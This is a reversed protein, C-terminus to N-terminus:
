ESTEFGDMAPVFTGLDENIEFPVDMSEDDSEPNMASMDSLATFLDAIPFPDKPTIEWETFPENDPTEEAQHGDPFVSLQCYLVDASGSSSQAHLLIDGYNVSFSPHDQGLFVVRKSTVHFVGVDELLPECTDTKWLLHCLPTVYSCVEGPTLQIHGHEMLPGIVLMTHFIHLKETLPSVKGGYLGKRCNTRRCYVRLSSSAAKHPWGEFVKM